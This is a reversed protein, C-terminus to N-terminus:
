EMWIDARAVLKLLLERGRPKALDLTICFVNRREQVWTTAVSPGDAANKLRVGITRWGVDGVVPREIQIVEAGMEAALEAAFAQAILTWSSVIKVGQLPGFNEPLLTKEPM